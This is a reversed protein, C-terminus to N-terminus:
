CNHQSVENMVLRLAVKWDPLEYGLRRKLKENSLISYRPREAPMPYQGSTIPVVERVKLNMGLNRASEFIVCAFEHWTTMGRCTAHYTGAKSRAAGLDLEGRQIFQRLTHLTLDALSRSWTPAGFQDAVISLVEKERGLRLMTRLFNVGETGFVWSTRFVFSADCAALVGKEGALKSAGYVNLPAPIDDEVWPLQKKGDFIYDTSYHIFLCGRAMAEEAMVRPATANIAAALERESEARDVATYAAANVIVQPDAFRIM